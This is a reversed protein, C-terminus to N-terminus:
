RPKSSLPPAPEPNTFEWDSWKIPLAYQRVMGETPHACELVMSRAAIQPHILAEEIRLVPTCCADANELLAVWQKQTKRKFLRRLEKEIPQNPTLRWGHKKVWEPRGIAQCFNRWFKLELAALAMHRGDKTEYVQYFPSGGSLLERGRKPAKGRASYGALLVPTLALTGDLMAVDIYAGEGTRAAKLLGALIAMGATLSGGALDAIQFNIPLPGTKETGIQDLLGSLSLYNLDHGAQNRLPGTQGYGTLSCYVLKPNLKKLTGYDANLKLAVGPRFSEVVADCSWAMEHFKRQDAPDRLDLTVSKKNRNLMLFAYSTKNKLPPLRRAYDGIGPDEIKIVEAGMDALYLTALPGPLLRTLDLIKIGALPAKM